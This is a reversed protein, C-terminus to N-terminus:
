RNNRDNKRTQRNQSTNKGAKEDKRGHIEPDYKEIRGVFSRLNKTKEIDLAVCDYGWLFDSHQSSKDFRPLPQASIQSKDGAQEKLQGKTWITRLGQRDERPSAHRQFWALGAKNSKNKNIQVARPYRLREVPRQTAQYMEIRDELFAVLEREREPIEMRNESSPDRRIDCMVNGDEDISKLRTVRCHGLGLPKGGGMKWDVSCAALLLAFESEHLARFSIKLKGTVGEKVLDVTKNVNQKAPKKLAGQEEYVGQVSYHWPANKGREKTNRYVKYGKLPSFKDLTDIDNADRYFAICGPHPAALPALTVDHLVQNQTLADMFVFNGPRVRAAFPGAAKGQFDRHPIQGFLDTVMDVIPQHNMNDPFVTPHSAAIIKKLSVGRKGWRAWQISKIDDASKIKKCNIDKPELWILDGARLEKRISHRHRGQYEAWLIAPVAIPDSGDSKFVGEKKNKPNVPIGSLKLKWPHSADSKRVPAGPSVPNDIYLPCEATTPRMENDIRLKSANIRKTEGLQLLGDKETNGPSIVEALFVNRPVEPVKDSPGLQADRRQTLWLDEDMYGLTGGSIITMLTRLSGRVATAPLIVDDDINLVKYSKHPANPDVPTAACTLLPSITTVDLELVGSIREPETEDITLPTYKYKPQLPKEPFPIFTYPNHFGEGIIKSSAANRNRGRQQENEMRPGNHGRNQNRNRSRM